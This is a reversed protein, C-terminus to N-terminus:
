GIILAQKKTIHSIDGMPKILRMSYFKEFVIFFIGGAFIAILTVESNGLLYTKVLKYFVLGLIATPLFALLITGWYQPKSVLTKFYLVVVALIAGLQITIEFSKVFETQPIKLLDSMLILHGTSSIPLFESLGETISLIIVQFLDM